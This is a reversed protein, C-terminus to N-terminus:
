LPGNFHSIALMINSVIPTARAHLWNAVQVDVVTLPDGTLVDEAIGGFLWSAGIVVLAGVTLNLGLSGSPSLRAGLFAIQPAFRRRFRVARPQQVFQEFSLRIAKEYRVAFRYLWLLLLAFLFIGGFIASARGIWHEATQWSAGLFYGLLVAASSWLAAGLINYAIFVTYKTLSAGALFPVIARAFGVFRGLLISKGGHRKFFADARDIREHNLGFRSGYQLLAPRRLRRGMEYGISDGVVAGFAVVLSSVDLDLAGESVLFGTVL